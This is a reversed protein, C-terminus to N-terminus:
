EAQPNNNQFIHIKDQLYLCKIRESKHVNLEVVHLVVGGISYLYLDPERHRVYHVSRTPTGYMSSKPVLHLQTTV